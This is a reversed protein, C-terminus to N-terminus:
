QYSIGSSGPIAERMDVTFLPSFGLVQIGHTAFPLGEEQNPRLPHPHQGHESLGRQAASSRAPLAEGREWKSVTKDSYNLAGALDLQTMGAAQRLKGINESITLKINRESDM